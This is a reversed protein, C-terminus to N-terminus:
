IILCDRWNWLSKKEKLGKKSGSLETSENKLRNWYEVRLQGINYYPASLTKKGM